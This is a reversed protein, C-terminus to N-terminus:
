SREYRGRIKDLEVDALGHLAKQLLSWSHPGTAWRAGFTRSVPERELVFDGAANQVRYVSVVYKLDATEITLAGARPEVRVTYHALKAAIQKAANTTIAANNTKM